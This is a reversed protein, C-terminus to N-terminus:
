IKNSTKFKFEVENQGSQTLRINNMDTTDIWGKQNKINTATQKFHNPPMIKVEKFCTYIHNLNIKELGHVMQLYYIFLLFHSYSGKISYKSYFGILSEKDKPMLNLNLDIKYTEKIKTYKTKKTIEKKLPKDEIKKNM